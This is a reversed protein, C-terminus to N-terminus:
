ASEMKTIPITDEEKVRTEDADDTLRVFCDAMNAKEHFRKQVEHKIFKAVPLAYNLANIMQKGAADIMQFESECKLVTQELATCFVRSQLVKTWARNVATQIM